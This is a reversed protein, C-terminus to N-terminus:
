RYIRDEEIYKNQQELDERQQRKNQRFRVDWGKVHFHQLSGYIGGFDENGGGPIVPVGLEAGSLKPAPIPAPGSIRPKRVGRGGFLSRWGGGGSRKGSRFCM